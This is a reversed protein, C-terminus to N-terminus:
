APGEAKRAPGKKADFSDTYRESSEVMIETAAPGPLRGIGGAGGRIHSSDKITRALSDPVRPREIDSSPALLLKVFRRLGM